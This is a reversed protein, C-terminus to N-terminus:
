DHQAEENAERAGETPSSTDLSSEKESEGGLEGLPGLELESAAGEQRPGELAILEMSDPLEWPRAHRGRTAAAIRELSFKPTRDAYLLGNAEQYTDAFQTYCFGSFMEVSRVVALLGEYAAALMGADDCRSYGWTGSQGPAFAIGGFESLVLPHEAGAAPGELVLMRGGPRERRLLRPRAEEAHYRRAIRDPDSDYDHIGIIDTAVSEWGDNGVVPRSPDLTKTLHYLAQVYHREPANDPLNPVGWSENFPVWAMICPHSHDREMAELWERTLREVSQRTFRYASPMEAWVLLGLRDAWYLYRPDEIKQHKRVGNFGMARALEVDRRLAADDPATMGTEPWYGQDLVLRLPYPRGNLLIRDGQLAIARLATYSEVRDITRGDQGILELEAEILTPSGPRWLLNNRYDDIGPDSLAIRRHVEGSVVAYTDDVLLNGRSVLRLRLRMRDASRGDIKAFCDLEWRELSPTWRVSRIACAPLRELWVTQWIGTTRPYWISHPELQWDQKGRPKALDAPDDFARVVIEIPGSSPLYETIDVSFPTYGGEHRAVMSRQVWVTADYDVAGFHLLLREGPRMAPPEVRRRYWCADFFGTEGIGSRQAEPAFPVLITRDWAVDEPITWRAPRDLAFDWIGDLSKWGARRLQPRPYGRTGPRCPPPM